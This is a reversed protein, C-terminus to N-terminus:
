HRGMKPQGLTTIASWSNWPKSGVIRFRPQHKSKPLRQPRRLLLLQVMRRQSTWGVWPRTIKYQAMESSTLYRMDDSGVSLSIQLLDASVGMEGLYKIIEATMAQVVAVATNSDFGAAASFSSQHVGISGAEAIRSVGGVFALACASACESSRLQLTNAGLARIMRGFKIAAVVNGGKSQFTIFAPKSQLYETVLGSPDDSQEFEGKVILM